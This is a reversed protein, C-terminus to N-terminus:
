ENTAELMKRALGQFADDVHNGDKASTQYILWGKESLDAITEDDIQWEKKIDSKNILLISPLKGIETTIKEELRLVTELTGRRTGDVVFIFGSSGRLYSMRVEMFKDEGALDWIMLKVETAGVQTIKKDIKVGLTTLYKESFLSNVYQQVLSTKGVAFAGLLCIKKQIM